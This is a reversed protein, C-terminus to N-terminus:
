EDQSTLLVSGIAHGEDRCLTVSISVNHYYAGHEKQADGIELESSVSLPISSSMPKQGYSSEGWLPAQASERM